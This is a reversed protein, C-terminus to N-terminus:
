AQGPSEFQGACRDLGYTAKSSALSRGDLISRGSLLSSDCGNMGLDPVMPHHSDYVGRALNQPNCVSEPIPPPLDSFSM